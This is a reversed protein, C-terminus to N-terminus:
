GKLRQSAKLLAEFNGPYKVCDSTIESHDIWKFHQHESPDIKIHWIDKVLILYSREHVDRNWRDHFHFDLELDIVEVINESELGTEEMVERIAGTQFDEGDEIKGTCNQWFSGREQNTQLLLFKNQRLPQATAVVIQAKRTITKM